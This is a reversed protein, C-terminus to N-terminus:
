GSSRGKVLDRNILMPTAGARIIADCNQSDDDPWDSATLIFRKELFLNNIEDVRNEHESRRIHWYQNQEQRRPSTTMITFEVDAREPDSRLVRLVLIPHFFAKKELKHIATGELGHRAFNIDKKHPLRLISGEAIDWPAPRWRHDLEEPTADLRTTFSQFIGSFHNHTEWAREISM